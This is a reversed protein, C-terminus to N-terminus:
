GKAMLKRMEDESFTLAFSKFSIDMSHVIQLFKDNVAEPHGKQYREWNTETKKLKELRLDVVAQWEVGFADSMEKTKFWEVEYCKHIFSKPKKMLWCEGSYCADPVYKQIEEPMLYDKSYIEYVHLIPLIGLTSIQNLTEGGQPSANLAKMIDITPNDNAKICCIRTISKDEGTARNGPVKLIFESIPDFSVHIFKQKKM